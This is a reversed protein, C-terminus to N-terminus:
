FLDQFKNKIFNLKEKLNLKFINILNKNNLINKLILYNEKWNFKKINKSGSFLDKIGQIYFYFYILYKNKIYKYKKYIEKKIEKIEKIIKRYIKTKKLKIILIYIIKILKFQLLIKKKIKFIFVIPIIIIYTTIYQIISTIINGMAFNAFSLIEIYKMLVMPIMFIFFVLYENEIKILNEKLKEVYKFSSLYNYIPLGIKNWTIEEFLIFLLLAFIKLFKSIKIIMKKIYM